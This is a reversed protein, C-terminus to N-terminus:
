AAEAATPSQQADQKVDGDTEGQRNMRETEKLDREACYAECRIPKRDFKHALAEDIRWQGWSHENTFPLMGWHQCKIKRTAMVKAGRRNLERSLHWDSPAHQAEWLGPTGDSNAPRRQIRDPSTFHMALTGDANVERWWPKTFDLICLGHNVLLQGKKYGCDAASFTPPLDYVETMTIRRLVQFPEDDIACSSKGDMDKIPTVVSLMDADSRIMEEVLMDLWGPEPQVDNHMMVIHTVNVGGQEVTKGAEFAEVANLAWSILANGGDYSGPWRRAFHRGLLPSNFKLAQAMYAVHSEPVGMGYDLMQSFISGIKTPM